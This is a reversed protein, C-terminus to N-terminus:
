QHHLSKKGATYYHFENSILYDEQWYLQPPLPPPPLPPPAPSLIRIVLFLINDSLLTEHMCAHMCSQFWLYLYSRLCKIAACVSECIWMKIFLFFFKYEEHSECCRVCTLLCGNKVREFCNAHRLQLLLASFSAGARDRPFGQAHKCALCSEQQNSYNVQPRNMTQAWESTSSRQTVRKLEM